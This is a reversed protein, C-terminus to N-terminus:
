LNKGADLYMKDEASTDDGKLMAEVKRAAQVAQELRNVSEATTTLGRGQALDVLELYSNELVGELEEVQAMIQNVAESHREYNKIRDEHNKIKSELSRSEVSNAETKALKKKYSVLDRKLADIDVSQLAKFAELASRILKVGERYIDKALSQYRAADLSQGARTKEELYNRIKTYAAELEVTEKTGEDFGVADCEDNLKFVEDKRAQEIQSRLNQIYRSAIEKGRVGYNYVWAGGGALGAVVPVILTFPTVAMLGLVMLGTFGGAVGLPIITAPHQITEKFVHKQVAGGSFDRETPLRTKKSDQNQETMTVGREAHVNKNSYKKNDKTFDKFFHLTFLPEKENKM